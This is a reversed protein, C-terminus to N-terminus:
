TVATDHALHEPGVNTGSEKKRKALAEGFRSARHHNKDAFM